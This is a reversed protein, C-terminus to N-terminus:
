RYQFKSMLIANWWVAKEMSFDTNPLFFVAVFTHYFTNELFTLLALRVTLNNYPTAACARVFEISFVDM